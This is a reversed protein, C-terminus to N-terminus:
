VRASDTSRALRRHDDIMQDAGAIVASAHRASRIISMALLVLTACGFVSAQLHDGTVGAWGAAVLSLMVLVGTRRFWVPSSM